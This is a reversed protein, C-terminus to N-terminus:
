KWPVGSCHLFFFLGWPKTGRRNHLEVLSAQPCCWRVALYM